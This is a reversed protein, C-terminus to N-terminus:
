DYNVGALIVDYVDVLNDSNKCTSKYGYLELSEKHGDAKECDDYTFENSMDLDTININGVKIAHYTLDMKVLDSLSYSNKFGRLNFRLVCTNNVDRLIMEYYGKGQKLAEDIRSINISVDGLSMNGETMVLYPTLLKVYSISNPYPYVRSKYFEKIGFRKLDIKLYDTILTNTIVRKILNEQSAGVSGNGAISFKIGFIKNVFSPISFEAHTEANGSVQSNSNTEVDIKEQGNNYIYLLDTASETDFYVIKNFKSELVKM